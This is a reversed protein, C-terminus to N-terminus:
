RVRCQLQTRQRGQIVSVPLEAPPDSTPHATASPPVPVEVPAPDLVGALRELCARQGVMRLRAFLNRMTFTGGRTQVRARPGNGQGLMTTDFVWGEDGPGCAALARDGPSLSGLPEPAAPAGTELDIPAIWRSSEWRAANALVVYGIARGDTKRALIPASPRGDRSVRPIHAFPHAQAGDVRYIVAESDGGSPPTAVYWHGLVRTAADIEPLPEGDARRVEIPGHEADAVLTMTEGTKRGFLLLSTPEDGVGASWLTGMGTGALLRKATDANAFPTLSTTSAHVDRSGAFPWVWQVTWHALKTWDEARPGWATVRALTGLRALRDISATAEVRVVQDESAFPLSPWTTDAGPDAGGDVRDRGRVSCLLDLDGRAAPPRLPAQTAGDPRVVRVDKKGWGVRVWGAASCGVPGCVREKSPALPEPVEIPTWSMGGDTSQYGRRSASWGLGYRGSALPSGADRVFQGLRVEGSKTVEIGLVADAIALWGSVVGPRREELGDLLIASGLSRAVDPALQPFSLQVSRGGRSPLFSLRADQRREPVSLIAISGDGYVILRGAPPPPGPEAENPATAPLPIEEWRPPPPASPGSAAIAPPRSLVCYSRQKGTPGEDCPGAIALAGNGFALVQRQGAFRRVPSLAFRRADFRYISTTGSAEACAFGLVPGGADHLLPVPHCRASASPFADVAVKSWNADSLRLQGLVGDRAVVAADDGLPWGDEVVTMLPHPGFARRAASDPAGALPGEAAEREPCPVARPAARDDAIAYCPRGPDVPQLLLFDGPATGTPAVELVEGAPGIRAATVRRTAFPVAVSRWTQGADYTAVVGSLDALAAARWGDLARYSTVSPAPPLPGLEVTQGTRPDLAVLSDSSAGRLYLRDLGPWLEATDSSATYVARSAGLWSDSRYVTHDVLFLFGGGLRQPLVLSIRPSREFREDAALAGGTPLILFRETAAITREAGGPEVGLAPLREPAEPLIRAGLVTPDDKVRLVALDGTAPPVAPASATETRACGALAIAGLWALGGARRLPAM